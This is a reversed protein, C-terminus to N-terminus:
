PAAFPPHALLFLGSVKKKPRKKTVKEENETVKQYYKRENKTVKKGLGKQRGWKAACHSFEPFEPPAFNPFNKGFRSISDVGPNRAGPFACM